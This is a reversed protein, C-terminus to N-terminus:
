ACEIPEGIRPIAQRGLIPAILRRVHAAPRELLPLFPPLLVLVFIRRRGLEAELEGTRRCAGRVREREGSSRPGSSRLLPSLPLPSPFILPRTVAFLLSLH